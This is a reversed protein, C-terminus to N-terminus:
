SGRRVCILLGRSSVVMWNQDKEDSVGSSVYSSRPRFRKLWCGVVVSKNNM